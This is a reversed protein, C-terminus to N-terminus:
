VIVYCLFIFILYLFKDLFYIIVDLLLIFLVVECVYFKM